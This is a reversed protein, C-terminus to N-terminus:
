GGFYVTKPEKGRCGGSELKDTDKVREDNIM